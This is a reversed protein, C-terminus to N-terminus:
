YFIAFFLMFDLPSAIVLKDGNSVPLGCCKTQCFFEIVIDLICHLRSRESSFHAEPYVPRKIEDWGM